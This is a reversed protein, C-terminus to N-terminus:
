LSEMAPAIERGALPEYSAGDPSLWSRYLVLRQPTFARRPTPELTREGPVSGQRLRAVTVHPRFAQHGSGHTPAASTLGAARLDRELARHLRELAGSDDHLEVAVARPRRTPLWLPAGLAVEGMEPAVCSEVISCLSGIEEVPRSGLFALTVHMLDPDLARIGHARGAARTPAADERRRGRRGQRPTPAPPVASAARLARRAWSSLEQRLGGPLDLAIFLRATAPHSM